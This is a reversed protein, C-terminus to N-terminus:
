NSVSTCMRALIPVCACMSYYSLAQKDCEFYWRDIMHLNYGYREHPLNDHNWSCFYMAKYVLETLLVLTIYQQHVRKCHAHPIWMHCPWHRSGPTSSFSGSPCVTLLRHADSHHFDSETCIGYSLVNPPHTAIDVTFKSLLLEQSHTNPM